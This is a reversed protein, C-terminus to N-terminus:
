PHFMSLPVRRRAGVGTSSRDRGPTSRTSSPVPHRVRQQTRFARASTPGPTRRCGGESPVSGAEFPGPQAECVRTRTAGPDVGARVKLVACHVRADLIKTTL